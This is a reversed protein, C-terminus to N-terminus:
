MRYVKTLKRQIELDRGRDTTAAIPFSSHTLKSNDEEMNQSPKLIHKAGPSLRVPGSSIMGVPKVSEVGPYSKPHIGIAENQRCCKRGSDGRPDLEVLRTNRQIEANRDAMCSLNEQVEINPLMFATTSDDFNAAPRKRTNKCQHEEITMDDFKVRDAFNIISRHGSNINFSPKTVSTVPDPPPQVISTPCLSTKMQGHSTSPNPPYVVASHNAYPTTFHGGWKNHPSSRCSPGSFQQSTEPPREHASNLLWPPLSRYSRQFWSAQPHEEDSSNSLPFGFVPQAFNCPNTVGASRPIHGLPKAGSIFQRPLDHAARNYVGCSTPPPTFPLLCSSANRSVGLSGNQAGRNSLLAQNECIKVSQLINETSVHSSSGSVFSQKSCTEMFSNELAVDKSCHRRGSVEDTWADEAFQKMEPSSRTIPVDKGMLRMTPQSSSLSVPDSSEEVYIMHNGKQKQVQKHQNQEIFSNRTLNLESHFSYSFHNSTSSSDSNPRHIDAGEMSQLETVGLRAPYHPFPEECDKKRTEQVFDRENISLYEQGCRSVINNVPIGGCSVRSTSFTQPQNMGVKGSLSFNILEGHSNLPLGFISEDLCNSRVTVKGSSPHSFSNDVMGTLFIHSLPKAGLAQGNSDYERYFQPPLQPRENAENVSAPYSSSPEMFTRTSANSNVTSLQHTPDNGHNAFKVSSSLAEFDCTQTDLSCIKGPQLAPTRTTGAYPSYPVTTMNGGDFLHPNKSDHLAVKTLPECKGVLHKSKEQNACPKLLCQGSVEEPTTSFKEDEAIPCVEKKKNIDTSTHEDSRNVELLAAEESGSSLKGSATVPVDSSVSFMTEDSSHGLIDDKGSLKVHRDSTIFQTDCDSDETGDQQDCVNSMRESINKMQNKLIGCVPPVEKQQKGVSNSGKVKQKKEVSSPKLSSIKKYTSADIEDLAVRENDVTSRLKRPNSVPTQVKRKYAVEKKASFENKKKKKKKMMKTKGNNVSEVRYNEEMSKKKPKKMRRKKRKNTSKKGKVTSFVAGVGSSDGGGGDNKHEKKNEEEDKGEKYVELVETDTAKIPPAVTLIEAISRKKPAKPKVKFNMKMQRREDRMAQALCSDIHANVATVTAANFDRCVPCVMELKEEEAAVSTGSKVCEADNGSIEGDVKNSRMAELRSSWWKFKTVTISVEDPNERFPWFKLVSEIKPQEEQEQVEFIEAISRKKPAKSKSKMQRREERMTQALCGDIHANVATLTAANFVRCVPCVMELREESKVLQDGESRSIGEDLPKEDDGRDSRSAEVEEGCSRPKPVVMPPLWSEVDERSVDNTSFPWCKFIDVSRMKSTYDRISFGDLAADM